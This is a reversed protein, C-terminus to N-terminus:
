LNWLFRISIMKMLTCTIFLLVIQLISLVTGPVLYWLSCFSIVLLYKAAQEVNMAFSVAFVLGIIGWILFISKMLNSEPNMGVKEVIKSWPGLQGAHTGTKPRVYDGVILGRSGDFTMYGFNLIALLIIVWKLILM